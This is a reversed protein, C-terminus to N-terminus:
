VDAGILNTFLISSKTLMIEASKTISKGTEHEM